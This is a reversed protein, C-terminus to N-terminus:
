QTKLVEPDTLEPHENWFDKWFAEIQEYSDIASDDLDAEYTELGGEDTYRSFEYIGDGYGNALDDSWREKFQVTGDDLREYISMRPPCFYYCEWVSDQVFLYSPSMDPWYNYGGDVWPDITEELEFAEGQAPQYVMHCPNNEVNLTLDANLLVEEALCGWSNNEAYVVGNEDAVASSYGDTELEHLVFAGTKLNLAGVYGGLYPITLWDNSHRLYAENWGEQNPQVATIEKKYHKWKSANVIPMDFGGAFSYRYYNLIGKDFLPAFQNPDLPTGDADTISDLSRGLIWDNESSFPLTYADLIESPMQGAESWAKLTDIHEMGGNGLEFPNQTPTLTHVDPYGDMVEWDSLYNDNSIDSPDMSLYYFMRAIEARTLDHSVNKVTPPIIKNSSAWQLGPEYWIEPEYPALYESFARHLITTIEVVTLPDSPRFTGADDGVMLGSCQANYVDEEFWIGPEVDPYIEKECNDKVPNIHLPSSEVSNELRNLLAAMEARNLKGLPNFTGDDNGKFINQGSVWEIADRYDTSYDVDPYLDDGAALVFPSGLLFAGGLLITKLKKM